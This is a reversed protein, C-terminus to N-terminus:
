CPVIRQKTYMMRRAIGWVQLTHLAFRPLYQEADAQTTYALVETIKAHLTTKTSHMMAHVMPACLLVIGLNTNMGVAKWTAEVARYIREGLTLNPMAIVQASAEASQIFDSVVMGHGDAFIHVNGPKIAEVEALCAHLYAQALRDSLGAAVSKVM